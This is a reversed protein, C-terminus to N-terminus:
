LIKLPENLPENIPDSIIIYGGTKSYGEFRILNNKRLIKLYREITPKSKSSKNVIDYTKAFPHNKIYNFIENLEKNVEDVLGEINVGDDAGDDAGDNNDHAVGPFVLKLVNGDDSWRPINFGEKKCEKIIRLTGSGMMEILQRIFCVNAIDPNRLISPHEKKLDKISIGDPLGGYNSIETRDSYISIQLFGKHSHYDRHVIANLIGERLALKPYNAKEERLIGNITIKKGYLGDLYALIASINHFINEDFMNDDLFTNEVTKTPYVTIRIKSQPIFKTPNKGFLVMCANTINGNLILGTQILFDEADHYQKAPNRKIAYEITRNIEHVDLDVMEAGLLPMREWNFDSLKRDKILNSIDEPQAITVKDEIKIYYNSNYLYPKNAGEWVSILILDKRKYPIIQTSVPATPIINQVLYLRIEEAIHDAEHIGVIQKEDTVGLLLDGGLTNIFATIIQAIREKDVAPMLKIRANNTQQLLNDVIFSNNDM